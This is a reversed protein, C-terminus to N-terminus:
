AKAHFVRVGFAPLKPLSVIWPTLDCNSTDSLGKGGEKEVKVVQEEEISLLTLIAGTATLSLRM